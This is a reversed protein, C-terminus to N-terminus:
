TWYEVRRPQDSPSNTSLTASLDIVSGIPALVTTEVKGSNVHYNVGPQKVSFIVTQQLSSSVSESVAVNGQGGSGIGLTVYQSILIIKGVEGNTEGPGPLLEFQFPTQLTGESDSSPPGGSSMEGSSISQM